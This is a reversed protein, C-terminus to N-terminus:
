INPGVMEALNVYLGLGRMGAVVQGDATQWLLDHLTTIVTDYNASPTNHYALYPRYWISSYM